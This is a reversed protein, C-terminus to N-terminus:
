PPPPSPSVPEPVLWPEIEKRARQAHAEKRAAKGRLRPAAPSRAPSPAATARDLPPFLAFVVNSPQYDYGAPHAEGTLHRHLAGIATAAPPARFPRGALRDLIARAALLGCAASEVYGEVGTARHASGRAGGAEHPRVRARRARTGGDGRDAPLGRLLAAGRVRPAEGERGPRAGGRLRPVAGRRAPPEPLRRREGEGLAVERLRDRPRDLRGRRDARHRRLLPPEGRRAGRDRRRARRRHAPGDRRARARAAAPARPGRRAPADRAPEGRPAADRPRQVARPRGRARRRRPRPHRGGRRPRPERAPAAGRAAARRCERPQRLPALELLRAGRARGAHARALPAGAEDRPPGGRGRRPRAALRGRQGRARGRGGHGSAGHGISREGQGPPRGLGRKGNGRGGTAAGPAPACMRGRARGAPRHAAAHIPPVPRRARRTGRRRNGGYLPLLRRPSWTAGGPFSRM